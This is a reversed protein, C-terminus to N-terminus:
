EYVMETETVSVLTFKLKGYNADVNYEKIILNIEPEREKRDEPSLYEWEAREINNKDRYGKQYLLTGDADFYITMPKGAVLAKTYGATKDAGNEFVKSFTWSGLLGQFQ